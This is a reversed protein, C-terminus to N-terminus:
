IVASLQFYLNYIYIMYMGLMGISWNSVENRSRLQIYTYHGIYNFKIYRIPVKEYVDALQMDKLLRKTLSEYFNQM